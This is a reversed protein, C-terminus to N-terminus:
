LYIFWRVFSWLADIVAVVVASGYEHREIIDQQPIPSSRQSMHLLLSSLFTQRETQRETQQNLPVAMGSTYNGTGDSPPPATATATADDTAISTGKSLLISSSM